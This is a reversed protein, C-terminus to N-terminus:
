NLNEAAWDAARAGRFSTGDRQIRRMGVREGDTSPIKHSDRNTDNNNM